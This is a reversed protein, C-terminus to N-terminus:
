RMASPVSLLDKGRDRTPPCYTTTEYPVKCVLRASRTRGYRRTMNTSASTEDIFVLRRPDLKTQLKIWAKRAAAVDPRDQEAAHLSKKLHSNSIDFFASSRPRASWWKKRLWGPRLDPWRSTLSRMGGDSSRGGTHNWHM